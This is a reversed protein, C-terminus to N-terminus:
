SLTLTRRGQEKGTISRTGELYNAEKKIQGRQM